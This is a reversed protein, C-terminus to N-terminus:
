VTWTRRWLTLFVLNQILQTEREINSLESICTMYGNAIQTANKNVSRINTIAGINSIISVIGLIFVPVLILIKTSIGKKKKM